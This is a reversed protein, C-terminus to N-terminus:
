YEPMEANLVDKCSVYWENNEDQISNKDMEVQCIQRQELCLQKCFEDLQEENFIFLDERSWSPAKFFSEKKLEKATKM